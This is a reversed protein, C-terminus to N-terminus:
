TASWRSRTKKKSNQTDMNNKPIDMIKHTCWTWATHMHWNQTHIYTWSKYTWSKTQTHGHKSRHTAMIQTCIQGHNTPAHGYCTYTGHNTYAHWHNTKTRTNHTDTWPKSAEMHADMMQTHVDVTLIHGHNQPHMDMTTHTHEMTQTYTWSKHTGMTQALNPYTSTIHGHNIHTGMTKTHWEPTQPSNTETPNRTTQKRYFDTGVWSFNNATPFLPGFTVKLWKKRPNPQGQIPSNTPKMTINIHKGVWCFEAFRSCGLPKHIYKIDMATNGHNTHIHGHNTHTWPKYIVDIIQTHGHNETQTGVNTHGHHKTEIGIRVIQSNKKGPKLSNNRTSGNQTKTKCSKSSYVSSSWSKQIPM